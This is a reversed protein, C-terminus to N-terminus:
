ILHVLRQGRPNAQDGGVAELFPVHIDADKIWIWKIQVLDVAQAKTEAGAIWDTSAGRM